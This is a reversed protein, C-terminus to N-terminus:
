FEIRLNQFLAVRYFVNKKYDVSLDRDGFGIEGSVGCVGVVIGVVGSFVWFGLFDVYGVNERAVYYGVFGM